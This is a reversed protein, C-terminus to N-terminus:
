FPLLCDANRQDLVIEWGANRLTARYWACGGERREAVCLFVTAENEILWASPNETCKTRSRDFEAPLFEEVAVRAGAQRSSESGCGVLVAVSLLCLTFVAPRM